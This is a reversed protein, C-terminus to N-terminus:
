WPFYLVNEDKQINETSIPHLAIGDSGLTASIDGSGNFKLPIISSYTHKEIKCPYFEDMKAKKARTEALPLSVSTDPSLSFCKRLFPEIFIRCAVQVSVPNGPLAFIIQGNKGKGFWIPKGPKIQVKHFIKEVGSESLLQPIFDADGASVGGSIILIDNELAKSLHNSLEDKEDKVLVRYAPKIRFKDLFSAITYSNSDRIQVPSVPDMIGKIESGTSIIAIKPLKYVDIMYKGLSALAAVVGSNILTNSSVAIEGHNVDEGQKAINTFPMVSTVAFSILNNNAVSDEVKVIANAPYPVAAGTMIKFCEGKQLLRNAIGGALITGVCIYSSLVKNEEIEFCYGDMAARNFPPYDRDAIVNQALVRQSAEELLITETGFSRSEALVLDLAELYSHM